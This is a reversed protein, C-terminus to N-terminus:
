RVSGAVTVTKTAGGGGGGARAQEILERTRRGEAKQRPVERVSVAGPISVSALFYDEGQQRFTLEARAPERGSANTMVTTINRGDESQIMLATESGATIRRVSYDGAPLQRGGAVFDFPVHVYLRRSGAQAGATFATAALITIGLLARMIQKKM